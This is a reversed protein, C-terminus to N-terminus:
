EWPHKNPMIVNELFFQYLVTIKGGFVMFNLGFGNIEQKKGYILGLIAWFNM